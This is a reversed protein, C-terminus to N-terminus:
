RSAAESFNVHLNYVESMLKFRTNIEEIDSEVLSRSISADHENPLFNVCTILEDFLENTNRPDCSLLLTFGIKAIGAMGSAMLGEPLNIGGQVLAYFATRAWREARSAPMETLLFSKGFDRDDGPATYKVSKRAM